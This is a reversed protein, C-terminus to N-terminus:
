TRPTLVSITFSRDALHIQQERAVVLDLALAARHHLDGADTCTHVAIVCGDPALLAGLPALQQHFPRGAGLYYLVESIVLTDVCGELDARGKVLEGSDAQIIEVGTHATTRERALACARDSIDAGIIRADPRVQALAQLNHGDACGFEVIVRAGEPVQAILHGRKASEYSCEAYPWPTGSAFLGDFIRARAWRSVRCPLFGMATFFLRHLRWAVDGEGDGGLRTVGADAVSM